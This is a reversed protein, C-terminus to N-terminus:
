EYRCGHDPLEQDRRKERLARPIYTYRVPSGALTGAGCTNGPGRTQQHERYNDPVLERVTNDSLSSPDNPDNDMLMFEEGDFRLIGDYTSIWLFGENDQAICNIAQDLLWSYKDGDLERLKLDSKGYIDTVLFFSLLFIIIHSKLRM